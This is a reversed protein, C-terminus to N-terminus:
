GRGRFKDAGDEFGRGEGDRGEEFSIKEMQM